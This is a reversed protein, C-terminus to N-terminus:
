GFRAKNYPNNIPQETPRGPRSPTPLPTAPTIREFGEMPDWKYCELGQKALNTLIYHQEKKLMEGRYSKAEIFIMEGDKICAFDPWGKRIVNWGQGVLIEKLKQETQNIGYVM